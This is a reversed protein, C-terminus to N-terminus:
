TTRGGLAISLRDLIRDWGGAHGGRHEEPLFAHELTLETADPDDAAPRLEVTVVSPSPGTYPSQWTFVLRRYPEIVQFVGSHELRAGHAVM